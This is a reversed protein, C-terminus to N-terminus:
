LFFGLTPTFIQASTGAKGSGSFSTFLLTNLEGINNEFWGSVQVLSAMDADSDFENVFVTNAITLPHNAM